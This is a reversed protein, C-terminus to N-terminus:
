NELCCRLYGQLLLDKEGNRKNRQKNCCRDLCISSRCVSRRSRALESHPLQPVAVVIVCGFINARLRVKIDPTRLSRGGSIIIQLPATPIKASAILRREVFINM